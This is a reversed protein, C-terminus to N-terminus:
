LGPDSKGSSQRRRAWLSRVDTPVGGPMMRLTAGSLSENHTGLARPFGARPLPTMAALSKIASDLASNM